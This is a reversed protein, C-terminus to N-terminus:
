AESDAALGGLGFLGLGKEDSAMLWLVKGCADRVEDPMVNAAGMRSVVTPAIFVRVKRVWYKFADSIADAVPSLEQIPEAQETTIVYVDNVQDRNSPPIDVLLEGVRFDVRGRLAASLRKSFTLRFERVKNIYEGPVEANIDDWIQGLKDSLALSRRPNEKDQTYSPREYSLEFFQRYLQTRDGALGACTNKLMERTASDKIFKKSAVRLRLWELANRDSQTRFVDLLEDLYGETRSGKDALLEQVCMQLM